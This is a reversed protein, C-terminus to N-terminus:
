SLAMEPSAIALALLSRAAAVRDDAPSASAAQRLAQQTRDSVRYLGARQLAVRVPDDASAVAALGPADAKLAYAQLGLNVRALAQPSTLWRPDLPWGAVNPPDFPVQGAAALYDSGGIQTPRVGFAAAAQLLIELPQRIRGRLAADARFAPLRFLTTLAPRVQFDAGRLANAVAGEDEASAQDQLFTACLKHALFAACVPNALIREVIGPIDRVGAGGLFAVGDRLGANSSGQLSSEVSLVARMAAPNYRGAKEPVDLVEWGALVRAAGVVDAQSYPGRGLTFLEMLERAYNENPADIYSGDGNLFILMAPDTSIEVALQRLSGLSHRALLQHQRFLLVPQDVASQSSTFVGHWFWLLRDGLGISGGLGIAGDPGIAGGPGTPGSLRDIESNVLLTADTDEDDPGPRRYAFPPTPVVPDPAGDILAAIGQAWSRGTWAAVDEARAVFGTRRLLHAAEEASMARALSEDQQDDGQTV